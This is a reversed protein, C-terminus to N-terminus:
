GSRAPTALRMRPCEDHFNTQEDVSLKWLADVHRGRHGGHHFPDPCGCWQSGGPDAALRGENVGFQARM